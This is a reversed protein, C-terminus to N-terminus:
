HGNWSSNQDVITLVRAATHLESGRWHAAARASDVTGSPDGFVAAGKPEKMKVPPAVSSAPTSARLWGFRRVM